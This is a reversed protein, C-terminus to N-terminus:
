KIVLNPPLEQPVKHIQFVEEQFSSLDDEIFPLIKDKFYMVVPTKSFSEKKSLLWLAVWVEKKEGVCDLPKDATFNMLPKYLDVDQLLDRSFFSKLYEQSTYLLATLYTFACKACKCCFNAEPTTRNCSTWVELFDTDEFLYEAIKLEYMGFFPSYYSFDPTVFQHVYNNIREAFYITKVYQHNIVYGQYVLNPFNSSYENGIVVHKCTRGYLLTNFVLHAM